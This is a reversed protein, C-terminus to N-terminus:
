MWVVLGRTKALAKIREPELLGFSLNILKYSSANDTVGVTGPGRGEVKNGFRISGPPGATIVAAEVQGGSRIEIRKRIELVEVGAKM